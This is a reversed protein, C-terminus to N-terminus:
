QAAPIPWGDRMLARLGLEDFWDYDEFEAATKPQLGDWDTVTLAVGADEYYVVTLEQASDAANNPKWTGVCAGRDADEFLVTFTGEVVDRTTPAILEFTTDVATM